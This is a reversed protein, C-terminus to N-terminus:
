ISRDQEEIVNWSILMDVLMSPNQSAERYFKSSYEFLEIPPHVVEPEKKEKVEIEDIRSQINSQLTKLHELEAQNSNAPVEEKGCAVFLACVLLIVVVISIKRKLM